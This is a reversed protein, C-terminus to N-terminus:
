KKRERPGLFDGGGSRSVAWRSTGQSTSTTLIGKGLLPERELPRVSAAAHRHGPPRVLPARADVVVAPPLPPVVQPHLLEASPFIGVGSSMRSLGRRWPQIRRSIRTLVCGLLPGPLLPIPIGQDGWPLAEPPVRRRRPRRQRGPPRRRRTSIRHEPFIPAAPKPCNEAPGEVPGWFLGGSAEM